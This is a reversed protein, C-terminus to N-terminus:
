DRVAACPSIGELGSQRGMSIEAGGLARALGCAPADLPAISLGVHFPRLLELVLFTSFLPPALHLALLVQGREATGGGRASGAVRLFGVQLAAPGLAEDRPISTM